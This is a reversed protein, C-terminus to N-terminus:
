NLKSEGPNLPIFLHKGFQICHGIVSETLDVEKNGQKFKDFAKDVDGSNKATAVM